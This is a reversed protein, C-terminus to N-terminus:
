RTWWLQGSYNGCDAMTLQNNNGDNVIDLCKNSGTFQTRLQYAGSPQVPTMSWFQGSYNGCDAMTLQNNNGDNVIDLCKNPGTFETQLKYSQPQAQLQPGALTALILLCVTGLIRHLATITNTLQYMVIGKPISFTSSAVCCRETQCLFRLIISNEVSGARRWRATRRRSRIIRYGLESDQSCNM